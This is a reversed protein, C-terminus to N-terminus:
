PQITTPQPPHSISVPGCHHGTMLASGRPETLPANPVGLSFSDAALCRVTFEDDDLLLVRTCRSRLAVVSRTQSPGAEAGARGCGFLADKAVVPHWRAVCVSVRRRLLPGLPPRSTLVARTRTFCICSVNGRSLLRACSPEGTYSRENFRAQVCPNRPHGSTGIEDRLRLCRQRRGEGM